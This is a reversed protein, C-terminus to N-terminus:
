KMNSGAAGANIFRRKDNLFQLCTILKKICGKRWFLFFISIHHGQLKENHINYYMYANCNNARNHTLLVSSM